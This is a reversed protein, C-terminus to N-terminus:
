RILYDLADLYKRCRMIDKMTVEPLRSLDVNHSLDAIKVKRALPNNKIRLIYEMYPKNKGHTLLEVAELVSEPFDETKLDDLTWETDEVVDHLWAVAKEEDTDMKSAVTRPHDIYPNGAKDKQGAHAIYAISKAEVLFGIM